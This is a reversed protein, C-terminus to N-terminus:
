QKKAAVLNHFDKSKRFGILARQFMGKIKNKFLQNISVFLLVIIIALSFIDFILVTKMSPYILLLILNVVFLIIGSFATNLCLHYISTYINTKEKFEESLSDYYKFYVRKLDQEKLVPFEKVLSTIPLDKKFINTKKPLDFSYIFIGVIVSFLFFLVSDSNNSFGSHVKSELSSLIRAFFYTSFIGPILIILTERISFKNGYM